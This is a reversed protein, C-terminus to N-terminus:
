TLPDMWKLILIKQCVQYHFAHSIDITKKISGLNASFKIVYDEGVYKASDSIEGTEGYVVDAIKENELEWNILIDRIKKQSM